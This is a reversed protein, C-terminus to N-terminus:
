AAARELARLARQLRAEARSIQRQARRYGGDDGRRASAALRQYASGTGRLARVIRANAPAFEPSISVGALENAAGRYSSALRGASRAQGNATSAGRLRRTQSRRNRNLRAFTAKLESTYNEDSGLAFARGSELQLSTAASECDALFARSGTRSGACAVTAAGETTPAVYLTLPRDFGRPKLGRYRYAELEGLRVADNRTPDEGLRKRFAQPLLTPGNADTMGLTLAGDAADGRPALSIDEDLSLGPIQFATGVAAWNSPPSVSLPGAAVPRSETSEEGGSGSRGILFGAVLLALLLGAAVTLVGPGAARRERASPPAQAARPRPITGPLAETPSSRTRGARAAMAETTGEGAGTVSAGSPTEPALPRTKAPITEAGEPAAQTEAPTASTADAAAPVETPRARTEGGLERPTDGPAAQTEAPGPRWGPPAAQTEAADAAAALEDTRPERAERTSVDAEAQRIGTEEPVEIPGPPTLAARTRRSFAHAVQRLLEGASPPRDSPEKSMAQAIVEDLQAPLEPRQETVVPPPDAMHAYLVAAESDKPYPVVGTLCEYLVGALSYVDSQVTARDGRIQEPSIYDLTGVFQGTRTLSKEGSAKTLGFDALFAHDRGSVLINQPKIDRHILGATHAMDLAEAIPTLIRITRGADLERAVIMDKLNPGRVLRMAIFFGHETQGSDYVTVIHAHDIAAQIQGERRFREQFGLDESLHAALVKLAVLRNLSLQTAEYVVGMGGHGLVGDVRYGAVATGKELVGIAV